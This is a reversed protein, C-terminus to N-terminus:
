GATASNACQVNEPWDCIETLPNFVLGFACKNLSFARGFECPYYLSCDNPHAAFNMSNTCRPIEVIYIDQTFIVHYSFGIWAYTNLCSKSTILTLLDLRFYCYTIYIYFVEVDHSFFQRQNCLKAPIIIVCNKLCNMWLRCRRHLM